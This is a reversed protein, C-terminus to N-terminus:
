WVPSHVSRQSARRWCEPCRVKYPGTRFPPHPIDSRRLLKVGSNLSSATFNTISADRGTASTARSIRTFSPVSPFQTFLYRASCASSSGGSVILSRARSRSSSFSTRSSRIFASNRPFAAAKKAWSYRHGLFELEDVALLVVVREHAHEIPHADRFRSVVFPAAPGIRHGGPATRSELLEDLLDEVFVVFGVAITADVGFEVAPAHRAAALEDAGQYPLEAQDGALWSRPPQGGDGVGVDAVGRIEDLPVEGGVVGAGLKDTVNGVDPVVAASRKPSDM